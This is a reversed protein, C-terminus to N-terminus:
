VSNFLINKICINHIEILDVVKLNQNKENFITLISFFILQM